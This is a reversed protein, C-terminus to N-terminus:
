PYPRASFRRRQPILAREIHRPEILFRNQRQAVIQRHREVHRALGVRREVAEALNIRHINIVAVNGVADGRQLLM